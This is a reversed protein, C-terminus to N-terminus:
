DDKATPPRRNRRRVTAWRSVQARYAVYPAGLRAELRREERPILVTELGVSLLFTLALTGPSALIWAGGLLVLLRALYLPNRSWAYPGATVLRQPHGVPHPTGSGYRWFAHTGAAELAIGAALPLLGWPRWATPVWAPLALLRDLLLGLFVIATLALVVRVIGIVLIRRSAPGEM